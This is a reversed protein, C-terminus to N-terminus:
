MCQLIIELLNKSIAFCHIGFCTIELTKKMLEQEPIDISCSSVTIIPPNLPPRLPGGGGKGWKKEVSNTNNQFFESLFLITDTDISRVISGGGGEGRGRGGSSRFM